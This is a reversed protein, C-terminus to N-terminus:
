SVGKLFWEVGLILLKLAGLVLVVLVAARLLDARM